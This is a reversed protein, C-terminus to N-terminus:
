THPELKQQSLCMNVVFKPLIFCCYKEDEVRQFSLTSQLNATIIKSLHSSASFKEFQSRKKAVRDGILIVSLSNRWQFLSRQRLTLYIQRCTQTRYVFWWTIHPTISEWPTQGVGRSAGEAGPDVIWRFVVVVPPALASLSGVLPQNRTHQPRAAM